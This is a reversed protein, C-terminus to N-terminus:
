RPVNMMANEGRAAVGTRRATTAAGAITVSSHTGYPDAPPQGITSISTISSMAKPM